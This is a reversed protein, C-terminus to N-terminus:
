KSREFNMTKTEDSKRIFQGIASLHVPRDTELELGARSRDKDKYKTCETAQHAKLCTCMLGMM